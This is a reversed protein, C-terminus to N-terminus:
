RGQLIGEALSSSLDVTGLILVPGDKPAMIRGVVPDLRKRSAIPLWWFTNFLPLSHDSVPKLFM